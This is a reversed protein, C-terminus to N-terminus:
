SIAHNATKGNDLVFTVYFFSGRLGSLRSHAQITGESAVTLKCERHHRRRTSADCTVDNGDKTVFLEVCDHISGGLMPFDAKIFITKPFAVMETTGSPYGMDVTLHEETVADASGSFFNELLALTWLEAKYMYHM